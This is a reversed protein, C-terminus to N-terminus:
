SEDSFGVLQFRQQKFFGDVTVTEKFNNLERAWIKSRDKIDQYIVFTKLDINTVKDPSCLFDGDVCYVAKAKYSDVDRAILDPNINSIGWVESAIGLILYKNGKFHKWIQGKLIM